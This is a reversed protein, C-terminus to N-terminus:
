PSAPEEDDDFATVTAVGFVSFILLPWRVNDGPLIRRTTLWGRRITSPPKRPEVTLPTENAPRPRGGYCDPDVLVTRATPSASPAGLTRPPQAPACDPVPPAAPPPAAPSLSAMIQGALPGYPQLGKTFEGILQASGSGMAARAIARSIALNPAQGAAFAVARGIAEPPCGMELADSIFARTIEEAKQPSGGASYLVNTLAARLTGYAGITAGMPDASSGQRLLAGEAEIKAGIVGNRISARLANSVLSGSMWPANPQHQGRFRIVATKMVRAPVGAASQVFVQVMQEVADAPLGQAQHLLGNGLEVGVLQEWSVRQLEGSGAINVTPYTRLQAGDMAAKAGKFAAEAIRASQQSTLPAGNAPSFGVTLAIGLPAALLILCVVCRSIFSM